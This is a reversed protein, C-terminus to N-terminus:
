YFKSIEFFEYNRYLLTEVIKEKLFIIFNPIVKMSGFFDFSKTM